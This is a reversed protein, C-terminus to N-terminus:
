VAQELEPPNDNEDRQGDADPSAPPFSEAEERDGIRRREGTDFRLNAMLDIGIGGGPVIGGSDRRDPGFYNELRVFNKPHLIVEAIRNLVIRASVPKVIIDNVGANTANVITRKDAYGTIMLIPVFPNPSDDSTRVLKTFETGTIPAMQHDILVIDFRSGKLQQFASAGDEAAAVDRVGISRLIQMLLARMHRNDDVVLIKLVSLDVYKLTVNRPTSLRLVGDLRGHPSALKM